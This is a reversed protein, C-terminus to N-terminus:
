INYNMRFCLAINSVTQSDNDERPPAETYYHSPPSAHAFLPTSSLKAGGGRGGSPLNSRHSSSTVRVGSGARNKLSWSSQRRSRKRSSEIDYGQEYSEYNLKPKAESFKLEEMNNNEERNMKTFDQKNTKDRILKIVDNKQNDKDETKLNDDEPIPKKSDVMDNNKIIIKEKEVTREGISPIKKDEVNKSRTTKKLVSEKTPRGNPFKTESGERREQSKKEEELWSLDSEIWEGVKMTSINNRGNKQPKGNEFYLWLMVLLFALRILRSLHPRM